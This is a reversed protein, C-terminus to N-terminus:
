KMGVVITNNYQRLHQGLMTPAGWYGHQEGHVTIQLKPEKRVTASWKVWLNTPWYFKITRM